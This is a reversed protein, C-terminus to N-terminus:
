YLFKNKLVKQVRNLSSEFTTDFYELFEEVTKKADFINQINSIMEKKILTNSNLYILSLNLAKLNSEVYTSILIIEDQLKETQYTVFGEENSLNKMSLQKLYLIDKLLHKMRNFIQRLHKGSLSTNEIFHLTELLIPLVEINTFYNLVGAEMEQTHTIEHTVKCSSFETIDKNIKIQKYFWKLSNYYMFIAHVCSREESTKVIPIEYPDVLTTYCNNGRSMDIYGINHLNFYAKMFQQSEEIVKSFTINLPMCQFNIIKNPINDLLDILKELEELPKNSLKFKLVKISKSLSNQQIM